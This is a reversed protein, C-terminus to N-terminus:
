IKVQADKDRLLTLRYTLFFMTDNYLCSHSIVFFLHMWMCM